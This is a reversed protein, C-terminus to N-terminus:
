LADLRAALVEELRVRTGQWWEPGFPVARLASSGELVETDRYFSRLLLVPARPDSAMKEEASPARLRRTGRAVYRTVFFVVAGIAAFSMAVPLSSLEGRWLSSLTALSGSALLWAGPIAFAIVVVSATWGASRRAASVPDM